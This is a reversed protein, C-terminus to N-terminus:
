LFTNGPKKFSEITEIRYLHLHICVFFMHFNLKLHHDSEQSVVLLRSHMNDLFSINDWIPVCLRLFTVSMVSWLNKFQQLLLLLLVCCKYPASDRYFCEFASTWTLLLFRLHTWLGTQFSTNLVINQVAAVKSWLAINRM